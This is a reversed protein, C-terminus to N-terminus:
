YKTGDDLGRQEFFHKMTVLMESPTCQLRHCLDLHDLIMIAEDTNWVIATLALAKRALRCHIGQAVSVDDPTTPTKVEFFCSFGKYTFPLDHLGKITIMNGHNKKPIYGGRADILTKIRQQIPTESKVSM